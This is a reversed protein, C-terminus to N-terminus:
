TDKKIRFGFILGYRSNSDGPGISGTVSIYTLASGSYATGIWWPYTNLTSQLRKIRANNRDFITYNEGESEKVYDIPLNTDKSNLLWLPATVTETTGDYSYYQKSVSSIVTKLDSPLEDEYIEDLRSKIYTDSYKISASGGIIKPVLEDFNKLVFDVCKSTSDIKAIEAIVTHSGYTFQKYDGIAYDSSFFSEDDVMSKIQSWTHTITSFDTIPMDEIARIVNKYKVWKTDALYDSILSRPVFIGATYLIIPTQDLTYDVSLYAIGTTGRLILAKLKPCRKIPIGYITCQKGIDITELLPNDYFTNEVLSIANPFNVSRLNDQYSICYQPLISIGDENLETLTHAVLADFAAQEGLSTRTNVFSM